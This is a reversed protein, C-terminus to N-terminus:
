QAREKAAVTYPPEVGHGCCASSVGALLGLCPDPGDPEAICGCEVCPRETAAPADTDNYRWTTGDWYVLHGRKHGIATM